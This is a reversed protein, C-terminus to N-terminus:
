YSLRNLIIQIENLITATENLINTKSNYINSVVMTYGLLIVYDERTIPAKVEAKGMVNAIEELDELIGCLMVVAADQDKSM